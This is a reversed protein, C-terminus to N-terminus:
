DSTSLATASPSVWPNLLTIVLETSLFFIPPEGQRHSHPHPQAHIHTPSAVPSETAFTSRSSERKGLTKSCHRAHPPYITKLSCVSESTAFIAAMVRCRSNRCPRFVRPAACLRAFSTKSYHPISLCPYRDM